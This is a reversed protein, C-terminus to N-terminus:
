HVSSTALMSNDLAIVSKEDADADADADANEQRTIKTTDVGDLQALLTSTQRKFEALEKEPVGSAKPLEITLPNRHVGNVQFEYHLHPGTALGSKGVYGIIQGQKVQVGKRINRSFSSMHAYLTSRNGGHKLIVAKGYGGKNGALLVRGDGTAKIPTGTPAAYDVGKHARIRNLVPHKRNLNFRSSIRSFKLPTRLFAKRMSQGNPNFYNSDNNASTYRVTRYSRNRNIFEAALIPGEGVKINDKYFEEYIVNFEDGERIDLAFDIDWGFISVVQMILNDSLGARQASIFLSSKIEGRSDNTRKELEVVQVQSSFGSDEKVIELTTTLNSEFKLALLKGKEILFNLKQGPMLEKLLDTEEGSSMIQYLVTPGLGLREFIISLNDGTSVDITQWPLAPHTPATEKVALLESTEEQEVLYEHVDNDLAENKIPLILSPSPLIAMQEPEARPFLLYTTTVLIGVAVVTLVGNIRCYWPQDPVWRIEPKYDKKIYARYTV